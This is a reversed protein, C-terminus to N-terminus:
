GLNHRWYHSVVAGDVPLQSAGRAGGPDGGPPPGIRRRALGSLPRLLSPAALSCHFSSCLRSTRRCADVVLVTVM